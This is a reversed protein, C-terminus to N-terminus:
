TPQDSQEHRLSKGFRHPKFIICKKEELKNTKKIAIFSIIWNNDNNTYVFLHHHKIVLTIWHIIVTNFFQITWILVFGARRKKNPDQPIKLRRLIQPSSQKWLMIAQSKHYQLKKKTSLNFHMKNLQTNTHLPNFNTKHLTKKQLTHQWWKISWMMQTLM